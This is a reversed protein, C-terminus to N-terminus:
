MLVPGRTGTAPPITHSFKCFSDDSSGWGDSDDMEVAEGDEETEVDQGTSPPETELCQLVDEIRPRANPQSEWCRELMEWLNDTFRMGRPSRKGELIKMFVALDTDRHFPPRGSITEYIVMGLAYCDSPITPHANKFGFREPAIREPSMWRVTGGQVYSSSSLLYGHDSIIALLGFDSLRPHGTQDILVNAKSPVFTLLTSAHSRSGFVYARSIGM